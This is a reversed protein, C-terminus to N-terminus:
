CGQLFSLSHIPQLCLLVILVFLLRQGV